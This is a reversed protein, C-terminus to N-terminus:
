LRHKFWHRRPRPRDQEIPVVGEDIAPRRDMLREVDRHHRHVPRGPREIIRFLAHPQAQALTKRMVEALTPRFGLLDIEIRKSRDVEFSQRRQRPATLEEGPEGLHAEIQPDHAVLGAGYQATFGFLDAPRSKKAADNAGAVGGDLGALLMSAAGAGGVGLAQRRSLRRQTLGRVFSPDIFGGDGLSVDNPDM